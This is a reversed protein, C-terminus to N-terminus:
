KDERTYTKVIAYSLLSDVGGGELVMEIHKEALYVAAYGDTAQHQYRVLQRDFEAVWIHYRRRM